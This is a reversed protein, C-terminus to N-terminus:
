HLNYFRGNPKIASNKDIFYPKYSEKYYSAEGGSSNSVNSDDSPDKKTANGYARLHQPIAGHKVQILRTDLVECDIQMLTILSAQSVTDNPLMSPMILSMKPRRTKNHHLAPLLMHQDTFSVVYFTDDQRNIAEFFESYLQEPTPAFVQLEHRAELKVPNSARQRERRYVSSLMPSDLRYKKKRPKLRTPKEQNTSNAIETMKPPLDVPKGIWRELELVLRASETQNIAAPCMFFPSFKSTKNEDKEDPAWLLSRGHHDNLKPMDSKILDLQSKTSFSNRLFDLNIGVLFLFICLVISKKANKNVKQSQSMSNDEFQALREKLQTNEMQLRENQETLEKVKEELSTLYDKKKKRSLYASERNKIKRQQKKLLKPDVNSNSGVSYSRGPSIVVSPMTVTQTINPVSTVPVHTVAPPLQPLTAASNMPVTRVNELVVVNTTANTSSTCTVSPNIKFDSNKIVVVKNSKSPPITYPTKPVIPVRKPPLKSLTQGQPVIQVPQAYVISSPPAQSGVTGSNPSHPSRPPSKIEIEDKIDRQPSRRTPSSKISDSSSSSDSPEIKIESQLNPFADPGWQSFDMQQLESIEKSLEDDKSYPPSAIDSLIEEPSKDFFSNLVSMEDEGPNLLLPIDLDSSLQTLFDEDSTVDMFDTSYSQDSCSEPSSKFAYADLTFLDDTTLM